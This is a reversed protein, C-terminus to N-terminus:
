PTGDPKDNVTDGATFLAKVVVGPATAVQSCAAAGLALATALLRHRRSM